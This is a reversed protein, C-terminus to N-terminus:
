PLKHCLQTHHSLLGRPDSLPEPLLRLPLSGSGTHCLPLLLQCRKGRLKLLCCRRYPRNRLGGTNRFENGRSAPEILRDLSCPRTKALSRLRQGGSGPLSKLLGIILLPSGKRLCGNGAATPMLLVHPPGILIKARPFAPNLIGVPKHLLGGPLQLSCM